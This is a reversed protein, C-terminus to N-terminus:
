KSRISLYHAIAALPETNGAVGKLDAVASAALKAATKRAAHLGHIAVYTLKGREKDTGAPKGLQEPTSTANLIDDTVQFALGLHGGYRTLAALTRSNAGAVMAGIRVSATILAGTKQTHIYRLM